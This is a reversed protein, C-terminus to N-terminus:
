SYECAAPTRLQGRNEMYATFHAYDGSYLWKKRRDNHKGKTVVVIKVGDKDETNSSFEPFAHKISTHLKTRAEKDLEAVNIAVSAKRDKAEQLENLRTIDYDSIIESLPTAEAVPEPAVPDINTLHVENGDRDIETM